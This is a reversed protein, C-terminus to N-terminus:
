SSLSVQGSSSVTKTPRGIRKVEKLGAGGQSAGEPKSKTSLVIGGGVKKTVTIGGVKKVELNGDKLNRIKELKQRADMSKAKQGLVDRADTIKGQNLQNQRADM